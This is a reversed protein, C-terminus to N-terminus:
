TSSITFAVPLTYVGPIDTALAWNVRYSFNVSQSSTAAGTTVAQSGGTFTTFPAGGTISFGADGIPKAYPATWATATTTLAWAVNARLNIVQLDIDDTSTTGGATFDADTPATLAASTPTVTIRVIRQVTVSVQTGAPSCTATVAATSGCTAQAQVSSAAAVMSLAAMTYLSSRNFM